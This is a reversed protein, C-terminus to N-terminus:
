RDQNVYGAGAEAPDTPYTNRILDDVQRLAFSLVQPTSWNIVVYLIDRELPNLRNAVAFSGIRATDVGTSQPPKGTLSLEHLKTLLHQAKLADQHGNKSRHRTVYKTVQGEFYGLECEAALDWHQDTSKYHSGGVQIDNAKSM